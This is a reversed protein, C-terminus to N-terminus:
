QGALRMLPAGMLVMIRAEEDEAGIADYFRLGGDNAMRVGWYVADCGGEVARRSVESMLAKAVGARRWERAVFLMELWRAHSATEAHYALNHAAAGIVAGEGDVAVETALIAGEGIADRLVIVADFPCLAEDGLDERDLSNFMDAIGAADAPEARRIIFGRESM